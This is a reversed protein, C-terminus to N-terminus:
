RGSSPRRTSHVHANAKQLVQSTAEQRQEPSVAVVQLTREPVAVTAPAPVKSADLVEVGMPRVWLQAVRHARPVVRAFCVSDDLRRVLVLQGPAWLGASRWPLREQRVAIAERVPAKSRGPDCEWLEVV